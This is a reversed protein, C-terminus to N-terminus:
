ENDSYYTIIPLANDTVCEKTFTITKANIDPITYMHDIMFSEMISRLARAGTGQKIAKDAIANLCDQDFMLDVGDEKLLIQYQKTISDVPETLIKVLADRDLAELPCIIPLRGLLEPIMGFAKLDNSTINNILENFSKKNNGKNTEKKNTLGIKHKKCLRQEIIKEIGEFAGGCIFLINSTNIKYCEKNPHKRNGQMPVSVISGELMKLLAQQTGEGGVDRTLSVNQGKRGIKDIEDLFIIGKEALEIDGNANEILKQLVTEVDAGVYGAETLSSADCIAYPVGIQKALTEVFLTKGSGSPGVMLINSKKIQTDNKNTHLKNYKIRKDHNYMAVSLVKKAQEQNIIYKDLYERIISPKLMSAEQKEKAITENAETETSIKYALEACVECIFIDKYVVSRLLKLDNTKEKGCFKCELKCELKERM